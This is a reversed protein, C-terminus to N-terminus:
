THFGKAVPQVTAIYSECAITVSNVTPLPQKSASGLRGSFLMWRVLGKVAENAGMLQRYSWDRGDRDQTCLLVMHREIEFSPM